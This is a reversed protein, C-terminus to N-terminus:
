IYSILFLAMSIHPPTSSLEDPQARPAEIAKTMGWLEEMWGVRGVLLGLELGKESGQGPAETIGWTELTGQRRPILQFVSGKPLRNFVWTDPDWM